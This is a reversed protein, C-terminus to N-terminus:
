KINKLTTNISLVFNVSVGIFYTFYIMFEYKTVHVQNYTYVNNVM